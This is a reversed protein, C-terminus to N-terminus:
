TFTGRHVVVAHGPRRSPQWRIGLHSQEVNKVLTTERCLLTSEGANQVVEDVDLMALHHDEQAAGLGGEILWWDKTEVMIM